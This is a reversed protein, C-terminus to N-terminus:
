PAGGPTLLAVEPHLPVNLRFGTQTSDRDFGRVRHLLTGVWGRAGRGRRSRHRRRTSGGLAAGVVGARCAVGAAAEELEDTQAELPSAAGELAGRAAVVVAAAAWVLVGHAVDTGASARNHTKM